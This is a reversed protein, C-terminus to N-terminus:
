ARNDNIYEMYLDLQISRLDNITLDRSLDIKTSAITQQYTKYINEDVVANLNNIINDKTLESMPAISLLVGFRAEEAISAESSSLSRMNKKKFHALFIPTTVENILEQAQAAWIRLGAKTVPAVQRRKRPSTDKTNKPRGADKPMPKSKKVKIEDLAKDFDALDVLGTEVLKQKLIEELQPNHYAGAKKERKGSKRQKSEKSIRSTELKPNAGFKRVVAEDSIISREALEIWLKKEAEEEGLNNNDFEIYAPSTFGMAQRVIEIEKSWFDILLTRCYELRRILTKLSILNNTTGSSHDTGTLTPPIGMGAYIANLVPRYKDDGLFKYIDSNSEILEIDPGWVIDKIGASTNAALMSSLKAFAGDEPWLKEELSGLKIIRINNIAGDLASLDALKMRDLIQVDRLISFIIPTPWEEWDDKKYHYVLTEDVPLLIEKGTQFTQLLDDPIELSKDYISNYLTPIVIKYQKKNSFVAAKGGVLEITAPNMCNYEYPISNKRTQLREFEVDEALAQYIRKKDSKSLKTNRRRIIVSGNKFLSSSFRESLYAGRVRHFWSQYFLETRENPHSIRMGQVCFDSMLDIINRILGSNKYVKQCAIVIDKHCSPLRSEPRHYEYDSFNFSSRLWENSSYPNNSPCPGISAITNSYSEINDLGQTYYKM